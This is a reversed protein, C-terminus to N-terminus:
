GAINASRLKTRATKIKGNLDFLPKRRLIRDEAMLHHRQPTLDATPDIEAIQITKKDHLEITPERRNQSAEGDNLRLGDHAPVPSAKTAIPTPLRPRPSPPWLDACLQACQDPSHADLGPPTETPILAPSGPAPCVTGVPLDEGGPDPRHADAVPRDSGPRWPLVANSFTQDARKAAFAQILDNYEALRM